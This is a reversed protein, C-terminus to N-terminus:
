VFVFLSERSLMSLGAEWGRAHQGFVTGPGDFPVLCAFAFLALWSSVHIM